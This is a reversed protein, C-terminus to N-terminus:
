DSGVSMMNVKPIGQTGPNGGTIHKATPGAEGAGLVSAKPHDTTRSMVGGAAYISTLSRNPPDIEM